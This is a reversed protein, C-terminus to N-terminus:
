LSRLYARVSDIENLIKKTLNQAQRTTLEATSKGKFSVYVLLNQDRESLGNKKAIEKFENIAELRETEEGKAIKECRNDTEIKMEPTDNDKTDDISFLGNLAYKRAYSSTAGTLQSSDMGKKNDTERAYATATIVGEGETDTLIAHAAIYYRDGKFIVEDTVILVAKYKKTIPKVAELIDECSRYNYGGFKNIQSKPAKLEAQIESLKEYINM